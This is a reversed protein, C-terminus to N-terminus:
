SPVVCTAHVQREVLSSRGAARDVVNHRETVISVRNSETNDDAVRDAIRSCLADTETQGGRVADRLLAEVILPDDIDGIVELSLRVVEDAPTVGNATVISVVDGRSRAYMPYTSLPFNDRDAVAPVLLAALVVIVLLRQGLTM